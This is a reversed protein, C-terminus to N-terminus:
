LENVKKIIANWRFILTVFPNYNPRGLQVVVPFIMYLQARYYAEQVMVSM